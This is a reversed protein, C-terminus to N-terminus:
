AIVVMVCHSFGDVGRAQDLNTELIRENEYSLNACLWVATTLPWNNLLLIEAITSPNHKSDTLIGLKKGPTYTIEADPAIRGHFSILSADQWVQGIRAFALQVSSVGPIVILREPPFETKLAALMSYFGPDGSVMVVVNDQNSKDKIYSLSGRIDGDIVRTEAGDPAFTKLARKNGVIIRAKEIAQKAVPLLYDPSGPGIGVVIIKNEM